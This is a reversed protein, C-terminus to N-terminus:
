LLKFHCFDHKAPAMNLRIESDACSGAATSFFSASALLAFRRLDFNEAGRHDVPRRHLARGIRRLRHILHGPARSPLRM